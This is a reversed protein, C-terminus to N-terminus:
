NASVDENKDSGSGEDKGPDGDGETENESTQNAIDDPHKATEAAFAEQTIYHTKLYQLMMVLYDPYLHIGDSSADSILEGYGDSFIENLNLYYSYWLEECAELIYGNITRVNDNNNYEYGPAIKTEDVYIVSCVYIIAHPQLTHFKELVSKFTPLFADWPYYGLDNAGLMLYIKNYQRGSLGQYVSIDGDVTSIIQKDMDNIALGVSTLFDGQTIGSANRFGEMRSDGIFVADSFYSDDVATSQAPVVKASNLAESGQTQLASSASASTEPTSEEIGGGALAGGALPVVSTGGTAPNEEMSIDSFGTAANDELLGETEADKKSEMIAVTSGQRHTFLTVVINGEFIVLVACVLLLLKAIMFRGADSRISRRRKRKRSSTKKKRSSAQKRVSEKDAKSEESETDSMLEDSYKDESSIGDSLDSDLEFDLDPDLEPWKGSDKKDMRGTRRIVGPGPFPRTHNM